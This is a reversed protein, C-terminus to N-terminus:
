SNGLFNGEEDYPYAMITGSVTLKVTEGDMVMADEPNGGHCMFTYANNEALKAKIDDLATGPLKYFVMDDKTIEEGLSNSYQKPLISIFDFNEDHSFCECVKSGDSPKTVIVKYM